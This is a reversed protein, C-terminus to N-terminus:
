FTFLTICICHRLCVPIVCGTRPRGATGCARIYYPLCRLPEAIFLLPLFRLCSRVVAVGATFFVSRFCAAITKRASRDPRNLLVSMYYWVVFLKDLLRFEYFDVYCAAARKKRLRINETLVFNECRATRERIKGGDAGIQHLYYKSM